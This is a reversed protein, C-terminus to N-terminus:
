KSLIDALEYLETNFPRKMELAEALEYACIESGCIGIARSEEDDYLLEVAKSGMRSALMRDKATPSGGRQLYALIVVRTEKGTREEIMQALEQTDVEVGEAKMIIDHLKGRNKGQIIKRCVKNIDFPMEPVLINDAGGTLGAHLAIDGCHRGMVEIVTAREHSSSTDRINTVASLVTNVATDFGITYDTYGLDNDITGPIGMVPVGRKSLELGGRFSGDGGIVVIGEIGFAELVNMAHKQGAETKFRESRATRLITGGRHLIDGVSSMTMERIEGEILGEYGREIGYVEMGRDIGCRVVARVAANMGPADGGSTLVGIKRM